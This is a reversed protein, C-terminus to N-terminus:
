HPAEDALEARQQRFANIMLLMAGRIRPAHNVYHVVPWALYPNVGQVNGLGPTAEVAVGAKFVVRPQFTATIPTAGSKTTVECSVPQPPAEFVHDAKALAADVSRREIRVAVQCRADRVLGRSVRELDAREEPTLWAPHLCDIVESRSKLLQFFCNKELPISSPAASRAGTSSGALLAVLLAASLSTHRM